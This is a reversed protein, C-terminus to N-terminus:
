SNVCGYNTMGGAAGSAMNNCEVVTGLHRSQVYFGFGPGNVIAKNDRFVNGLGWGPYV